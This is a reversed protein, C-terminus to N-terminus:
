ITNDGENIRAVIGEIVSRLDVASNDDEGSRVPVTRTNRNTGSGGSDGTQRVAVPKFALVCRCNCVEEAPASPDGPYMMLSSGVEFPEDMPLPKTGLMAAHSDRTRNDDTAIWYKELNVGSQLAAGYAGMNAAMTTETRAILLARAPSFATSASIAKAIERKHLKGAAAAQLTQVLRERTTDTIKTVKAMASAGAAYDTIFSYGPGGDSKQTLQTFQSYDKGVSIWIRLLAPRIQEPTILRHLHSITAAIGHNGAFKTIIRSQRGFTQM